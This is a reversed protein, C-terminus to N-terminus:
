EIKACSKALFNHKHKQMNKCSIMSHGEDPALALIDFLLSKSSWGLYISEVFILQTLWSSTTSKVIVPDETFVLTTVFSLVYNVWEFFGLSTNIPKRLHSTNKFDSLRKWFCCLWFLWIVIDWSVVLDDVDEAFIESFNGM